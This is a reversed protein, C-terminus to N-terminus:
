NERLADINKSNNEDYIERLVELFMDIDKKRIVFDCGALSPASEAAPETIAAHSSLYSM